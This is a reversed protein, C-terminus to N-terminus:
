PFPLVEKKLPSLAAVKDSAERFFEEVLDPDIDLNECLNNQKNKM